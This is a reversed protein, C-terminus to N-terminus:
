VVGHYTSIERKAVSAIREAHFKGPRVATWNGHDRSRSKACNRWIAVLRPKRQRPPAGECVLM